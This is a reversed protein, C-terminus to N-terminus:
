DKDLVTFTHELREGNGDILILTHNGPAPAVAMQHFGTTTGLYDADIHWHIVAKPDRHTAEFVVRGRSGGAELPIYISANDSHPYLLGMANKDSTAICDNRTPPLPVYDTHMQRFYYEMSPPLVFWPKHQMNDVRECKDTVRFIGTKDLHIMQHYPCAVSRLGAAPAFITDVKDCLPGNRFGSKACVSVAQLDAEPKYFWGSAPLINFIDFLLPAATEIGILGPRGEGSANGTWVGVVYDPSCGIAWGDRFGFSTGTKWAIKRSSVFDKWAGDAHPRIVEVMASLACFCAAADLPDAQKLHRSKNDSIDIAKYSPAFFSSLDNNLPYDHYDNVKRAIGAYIGCLDWLTGEAGGLIISIGYDDSSRPITTMGLRILLRRFRDIGFRQVMRVAPINLSRALALRAPVAGEYARNFNQPTFGGITTPIDPILTTPLIDGADLMAAYLFPKLVSGTSRPSTIIDVSCGHGDSQAITTGTNGVYVIAQGTKVDLVLAAANYIGNLALVSNHQNVIANIREQLQRDISSKIRFSAPKKDDKKDKIARELLHPAIDPLALPQTVLPENKAALLSVSDFKHFACLRDLLANRKQLLWSRHKGPHVLSPENPLVALTATEAWSLHQPDRGFYRWSAAELGVVNGGFPAHSAYLALVTNKSSCFSLKVALIIEIIKEGITRPEGKRSLRIVQMPITSAGSKIKSKSIDLRIARALALPDVGPHYWFRKDEYATVADAFKQPVNNVYPFRWQGDTAIRAGLLESNKDELVFSWPDHFLHLPYFLFTLLCIIFLLLATKKKSKLIYSFFILKM